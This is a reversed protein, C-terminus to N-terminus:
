RHEHTVPTNSINVKEAGDKVLEAERAPPRLAVTTHNISTMEEVKEFQSLADRDHSVVLLTANNERCVERLLTIAETTRRFDLNGTPEDALVLKPRKALARALAVRQQQGVSLQSPRYDEYNKLGVRELVMRAFNIDVGRGFMMGLAVNELATYGQLLNFTQFVYGITEARVRDRGTESLSTIEERGIFIKGSEAQLIGAILNLFTTKGSGSAGQLAIQEGEKLSFMPINIVLSHEGGPSVFGKKLNAVELVTM